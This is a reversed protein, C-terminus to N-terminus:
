LKNGQFLRAQRDIENNLLAFNGSRINSCIADKTDPLMFLPRVIPKVPKMDDVLLVPAGDPAPTSPDNPILQIYFAARLAGALGDNQSSLLRSFRLLGDALNPAHLTSVIPHGTLGLNVVENASDSSKIESPYLLNASSGLMGRLAEGLLAESEIETQYISGKGWEGELDMEQPYEITMAVGGFTSVQQVVFSAAATTKGAGMSGMFLFLGDKVPQRMLYECISPPWNLELLTKPTPLHSRCVFLPKDHITQICTVRYSRTAEQGWKFYFPHGKHDHYGVLLAERLALLEGHLMQPVHTRVLSSTSPKMWSSVPTDGVFLDVFALDNIQM